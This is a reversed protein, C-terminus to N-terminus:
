ARAHKTNSAAAFQKKASQRAAVILALNAEIQAREKLLYLETAQAGHLHIADNIIQSANHTPHGAVLTPWIALTADDPRFTWPASSIMKQGTKTKKNVNKKM